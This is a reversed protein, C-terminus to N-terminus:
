VTWALNTLHRNARVAGNVDLKEKPSATGIGVNGKFIANGNDLFSAIAGNGDNWIDIQGNAPAQIYGVTSAYQGFVPGAPNIVYGSGTALIRGKVHLKESPIETNAWGGIGLKNYKLVMGDSPLTAAAQSGDFSNAFYISGYSKTWIRMEAWGADRQSIGSLWTGSESGLTLTGTYPGAALSLPGNVHLKAIPSTTGIGVNGTADQITLRDGIGNEHIAFNGTVDNALWWGGSVDGSNKVEIIYRQSSSTRIPYTAGAAIDLKGQPGATGIGVNGLTTIPGTVFLGQSDAISVSSADTKSTITDTYLTSHSPLTSTWGDAFVNFALMIALLVLITFSKIKKNTM